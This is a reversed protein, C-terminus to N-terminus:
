RGAQPMPRAKAFVQGLAERHDRWDLPAGDVFRREGQSEFVLTAQTLPPNRSSADASRAPRLIERIRWRRGADDTYITSREGRM